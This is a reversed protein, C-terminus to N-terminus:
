QLHGLGLLALQSLGEQGKRLVIRGIAPYSLWLVVLVGFPSEIAITPTLAAQPWWVTVAQAKAGIDKNRSAPM